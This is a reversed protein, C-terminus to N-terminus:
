CFKKKEPERKGTFTLGALADKEELLEEDTLDQLRFVEWWFSKKERRYWDLMNALLWKAQQEATRNEKEFPVDKILADFLPQIRKQHETINEAPEGDDTAPRPIDKGEKILETRQAELWNRLWETSICDDKNYDRVINKTEEDVVDISGSELLGEYLLKHPGVTKLDVIRLYGHLKELDKLSYSEIGAIIARRTITHLNVFVKARLLRDLEDERTAYKGVLRKLATQEYAGFHYIHMGPDKERIQMVTDIFSELAQKEETENNAWLEHYNDQYWWGFLYELGTTGVFPDGEFDFFIDHGSPEPLKFFGFDQELPLIEFVATNTTRSRVQLNAQHALRKYTEISGRTPKFSVVPYLEAM